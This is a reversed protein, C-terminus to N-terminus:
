FPIDIGFAKLGTKAWLLFDRFLPSNKIALDAASNGLDTSEKLTALIQKFQASKKPEMYIAALKDVQAMIKQLPIKIQRRFAIVGDTTIEYGSYKREVEKFEQSLSGPMANIPVHDIITKDVVNQIYNVKALRALTDKFEDDKMMEFADDCLTM